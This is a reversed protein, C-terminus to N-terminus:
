GRRPDTPTEGITRGDKDREKIGVRAIAEDRKEGYEKIRKMVGNTMEELTKEDMPGYQKIIDQKIQKIYTKTDIEDPQIGNDGRSSEEISEYNRSTEGPTQGGSRNNTRENMDKTNYERGSVEIREAVLKGTERSQEVEHFEPYGGEGIIVAFYKDQIDEEGNGKAPNKIEITQLPIEKRSDERGDGLIIVSEMQGIEKTSFHVTDEIPKGKEDRTGVKFNGQNDEFFFLDKGPFMGPHNKYFVSDERIPYINKEDIGLEEAIQERDEEINKEPEEEDEKEQEETTEEEGEHSNEPQPEKEQDISQELEPLGLDDLDKGEEQLIEIVKKFNEKIYKFEGNKTITGFTIGEYEITYLEGDYNTVEFGETSITTQGKKLNKIVELIIAEFRRDKALDQEMGENEDM